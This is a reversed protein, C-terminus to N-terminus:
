EVKLAPFGAQVAQFNHRWHLQLINEQFIVICFFCVDVLVTYIKYSLCLRKNLLSEPSSFAAYFICSHLWGQPSNASPSFCEAASSLPQVPAFERQGQQTMFSLLVLTQLEFLVVKARCRLRFKLGTLRDMSEYANILAWQGQIQAYYRWYSSNINICGWLTLSSAKYGSIHAHVM